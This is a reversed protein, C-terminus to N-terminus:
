SLEIYTGNTARCMDLRYEVKPWVNQLLPQDIKAVATRTRDKLKNLTMPMPPVYVEDKV